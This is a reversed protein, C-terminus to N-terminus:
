VIGPPSTDRPLDIPTRVRLSNSANVEPFAEITVRGASVFSHHVTVEVPAVDEISFFVSTFPVAPEVEIKTTLANIAPVPVKAIVADANDKILTTAAAELEISVVEVKTITSASFSTPAEVIVAQNRRFSPSISDLQFYSGYPLLMPGNSLEGFGGTTRTWLSSRSAPKSIRVDGVETHAPVNVPASLTVATYNLHDVGQQDVVSQIKRAHLEAGVKVLVLDDEKVSVSGVECLFTSRDQAVTGFTVPRVPLFTWQNLFPHITTETDLEFVQPPNGDFAGSRFATGVPLTVVQRGDAFAALEALAAVAPRPLYGLPAVLKRLSSRRRSTRVYSENALVDDYFSTLDCVYAWMELLMMGFDEPHRGRWNGIAALAKRLGDRDREILFRLSWLPHNEFVPLPVFRSEM